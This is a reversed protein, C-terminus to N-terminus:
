GQAELPPNEAIKETPPEREEEGGVVAAEDRVLLAAVRLEQARATTKSAEGDIGLRRGEDELRNAVVELRRQARVAFEEHNM